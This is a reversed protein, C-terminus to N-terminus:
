SSASSQHPSSCRIRRGTEQESLALPHLLYAKRRAPPFRASGFCAWGASVGASCDSRTHIILDQWAHRGALWALLVIAPLVILAAGGALAFAAGFPHSWVSSRRQAIGFWSTFLTVVIATMIYFAVNHKFCAAVGLLLGAAFLKGRGGNQFYCLVREVYTEPWTCGGLFIAKAKFRAM